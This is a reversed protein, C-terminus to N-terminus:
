FKRELSSPDQPFFFVFLFDWMLNVSSGFASSSEFRTASPMSTSVSKCLSLSTVSFAENLPNSSALSSTFIIATSVDGLFLLTQVHMNKHRQMCFFKKKCLIQSEVVMNSFFYITLMGAIAKLLLIMSIKKCKKNQLLRFFLLLLFWLLFVYSMKMKNNIFARHYIGMCAQMTHRHPHCHHLCHKGFSSPRLTM